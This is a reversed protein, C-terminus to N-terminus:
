HSPQGEVHQQGKGLELALNGGLPDPVLDRCLLQWLHYLKPDTTTSTTPQLNKMEAPNARVNAAFDTWSKDHKARELANRRELREIEKQQKTIGAPKASPNIWGDYAANMAPDTKAVTAIRDRLADPSNDNRWIYMATNLALQRECGNKRLPGDALLWDIDEV